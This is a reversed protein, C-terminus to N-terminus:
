PFDIILISKLSWETYSSDSPIKWPCTGARSVGPVDEAAGPARTRDPATHQKGPLFHKSSDTCHSREPRQRAWLWRTNRTTLTSPLPQLGAQHCRNSASPSNRRGSPLWSQMLFCDGVVAHHIWTCTYGWEHSSAPWAVHRHAMPGWCCLACVPDREASTPFWCPATSPQPTSGAPCEPQHWLLAWSAKIKKSNEM